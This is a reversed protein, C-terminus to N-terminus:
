SHVGTCLRVCCLTCSTVNDAAVEKMMREISSSEGRVAQGGRREWGAAVAPGGGGDGRPHVGWELGVGSLVERAGAADGPHLYADGVPPFGLYVREDPGSAVVLRAFSPRGLRPAGGLGDAGPGGLRPGRPGV